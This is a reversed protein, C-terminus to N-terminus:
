AAVDMADSDGQLADPDIDGKEEQGIYCGLGPSWVYEHKLIRSLVKYADLDAYPVGTRPDLYQAQKGTILCMQRPRAIRSLLFGFAKLM